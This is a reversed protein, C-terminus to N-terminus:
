NKRKKYYSNAMEIYVELSPLGMEIRRQDISSSDQMPYPVLSGNVERLQTGYRQPLSDFVLVRDELMALNQRDLLGNKVQDAIYPVANRQLDHDTSHQLLTFAKQLDSRSLEKESFWPHGALLLKLSDTNVSDTSYMEKGLLADLSGAKVFRDRIASDRGYLSSLVQSTHSSSSCSALLM